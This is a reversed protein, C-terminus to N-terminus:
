RCACAYTNFHACAHGFTVSGVYLERARTCVKKYPRATCHVPTGAGIFVFIGRCIVEANLSAKLQLCGQEHVHIHAVIYAMTTDAMGISAMVIYPRIIYAMGISAMPMCGMPIYVM